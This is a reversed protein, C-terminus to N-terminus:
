LVMFDKYTHLSFVFFLICPIILLAALRSRRIFHRFVFLSSSIICAIVIFAISFLEAGFFLPYWLFLFLLFTGYILCTNLRWRSGNCVYSSLYVGLSIGLMSYILSWILVLIFSSPAFYPVVLYHYISASGGLIRSLIGLIFHIVVALIITKCNACYLERKLDFIWKM